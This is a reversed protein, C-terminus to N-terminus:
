SFYCILISTSLFDSVGLFISLIAYFSFIKVISENVASSFSYGYLKEYFKDILGEDKYYNM